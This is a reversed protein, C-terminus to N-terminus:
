GRAMAEALRGAILPALLWGNRRAGVALWIGPSESRGMLPLADATAARVGTRAGVRAGRLAPLFRAARRLLEAVIKADVALDDRGVEMSAGILPGGAAPCVYGGAFRLLIGPPALDPAQLIHGKIPTLRALEPAITLLSASAGTAIVLADALLEGGRALCARGPSFGVVADDVFRAGASAAARRLAALAAGAELRLDEGSWVAGAAAHVGPCRARAEAATLRRSTLGHAALRARWADLDDVEGVAMAGATELRLGIEEALPAWLDRASLMLGVHPRAAEDFVAEFAPALMGAAVMSANPGAATRDILAVRAGAKALALAVTTGVAGAGAVAASLGALTRAGSEAPLSV